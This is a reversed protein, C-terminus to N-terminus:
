RRRWSKTFRQPIYTDYMVVFINRKDYNCDLGKRNWSKDGSKYCCYCLLHGLHFLFQGGTRLVQRWGPKQTRTASGKTNQRTIQKERKHQGEFYLKANEMQNIWVNWVSPRGPLCITHPLVISHIRGAGM